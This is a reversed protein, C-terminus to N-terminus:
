IRVCAWECEDCRDGRGTCSVGEAGRCDGLSSSGRDSPGIDSTPLECQRRIWRCFVVGPVLSQFPCTVEACCALTEDDGHGYWRGMRKGEEGVGERGFTQEM